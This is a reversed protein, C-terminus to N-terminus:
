RGKQAGGRGKGRGGKCRCGRGRRHRGHVPCPWSGEPGTEVPGGGIELVRGGVLARAITQRARLLVRAYTARSVGMRRAAEEQYLGEVDALRIAELGDLTLSEKELDKLPLGQPKFRRGELHDAVRRTSPPRAM